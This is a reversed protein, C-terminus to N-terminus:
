NAELVIVRHNKTIEEALAEATFMIEAELRVAVLRSMAVGRALNASECKVFFCFPRGDKLSGSVKYTKM